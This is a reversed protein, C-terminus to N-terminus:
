KTRVTYSLAKEGKAPVEVMWAAQFGSEKEHPLSEKTINWQGHFTEVVKVVAKEPKANKLTLVYGAQYRFGMSGSLKRFDTQLKEATLDFATGLKLRVTGRDPTHDVRDEGAFQLNQRSDEKYVRIVGKPLPIGLHNAKTNSFTLYIGVDLKRAAGEGMGRAYGDGRVLFEKSCPVNGARLLAVQKTQNNKLTTPHDLTYLHYEFMDEQAFAQDSMPAAAKEMINRVARYQKKPTLHVDGAVLQLRANKYTARSTNTLTVWGSLDLATDAANLSAVYDAQWTLGSTLYTLEMERKGGTNSLIEMTLTPTTRLNEPVTDFALRGPIGTEIGQDTRLVVGDEVALVRAPIRREEGTEPHTKILTVSKGVQKKLLSKPTLLDFEFNQELVSLGKGKLLATEPTIRGSIDKFALINRGNPLSVTRTDRILALDQNYITLSVQTQDKLGTEIEDAAEAPSYHGASAILAAIIPILLKKM